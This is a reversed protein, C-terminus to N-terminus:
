TKALENKFQMSMFFLRGPLYSDLQAKFSHDVDNYTRAKLSFHRCVSVLTFINFTVGESLTIIKKDPERPLSFPSNVLRWPIEAELLPLTTTASLLLWHMCTLFVCLPIFIRTLAFMYTNAVMYFLFISNNM